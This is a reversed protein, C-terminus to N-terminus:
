RNSPVVLGTPDLPTPLIGFQVMLDIRAALDAALDFDASWEPWVARSLLAASSDSNREMVEAGLTNNAAIALNAAGIARQFAAITNPNEQAFRTSAGWAGGATNRFAPLDALIPPNSKGDNVEVVGLNNRAIRVFPEPVWMADVEGRELAPPMQPFPIEVFTVDALSVGADALAAQIIIHGYTNLTNIAITTGALDQVSEIGSDPMVYVGIGNGDIAQYYHGPAVLSLSLGRHRAVIFPELATWFITVEGSLLRPILAAGGSGVAARVNLGEAEFLGEEVAYYFPAMAM